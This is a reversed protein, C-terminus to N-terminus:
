RLNLSVLEKDKTKNTTDNERYVHTSKKGESDDSLLNYNHGKVGLCKLMYKRLVTNRM